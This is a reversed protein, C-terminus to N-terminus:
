HAQAAEKIVELRVDFGQSLLKHYQGLVTQPSTELSILKLRSHYYYENLGQDKFQSRLQNDVGKVHLIHSIRYLKSNTSDYATPSAGKFNRKSEFFILNENQSVIKGFENQYKNKDMSLINPVVQYSKGIRIPEESLALRLKKPSPRKVYVSAPTRSLPKIPVPPYKKTLFIKNKTSSSQEAKKDSGLHEPLPANKSFNFFFYVALFTVLFFIYKKMLLDAM